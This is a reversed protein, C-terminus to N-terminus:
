MHQPSNKFGMMMGKWVRVVGKYEFAAKFRDGEAKKIHHFGDKLDLVSIWKADQIAQIVEKMTNLKYSDKEVLDKLAMVNIVFRVQGNQKKMAGKPNRWKTAQSDVKEVINRKELDILLEGLQKELAQPIMASKKTVIKGKTTKLTCVEKDCFKVPKDASDLVEPFKRKLSKILIPSELEEESTSDEYDEVESSIQKGVEKIERKSSNDECIREFKNSESERSRASTISGKAGSDEKSEGLRCCLVYKSNDKNISGQTYCNRVVHGPKSCKLVPRQENRLSLRLVQEKLESLQRKKRQRLRRYNWRM